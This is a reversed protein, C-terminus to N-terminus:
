ATRASQWLAMDVTGALGGQSLPVVLPVSDRTAALIANTIKGSIGRRLMGRMTVLHQEIRALDVNHDLTECRAAIPKWNTCKTAWIKRSYEGLGKLEAISKDLTNSAALGDLLSHLRMKDAHLQVILAHFLDTYKSLQSGGISDVPLNKALNSYAQQALSPLPYLTSRPGEFTTLQYGWTKVSRGNNSLTEM